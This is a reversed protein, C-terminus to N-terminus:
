SKELLQKMINIIENDFLTNYKFKVEKYTIVNGTAIDIM